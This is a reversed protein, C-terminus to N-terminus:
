GGFGSSRGGSGFSSRAAASSGFGSRSVTIARTPMDIAGSRGRV